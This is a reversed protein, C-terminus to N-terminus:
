VSVDVGLSTRYSVANGTRTYAASAAAHPPNHLGQGLQEQAISQALFATSPTAARTNVYHYATNRSGPARTASEHAAGGDRSQFAAVQGRTSGTARRSNNETGSHGDEYVRFRFRRAQAGEEAAAYAAGAAKGRHQALADPPTPRIPVPLALIQAIEPM